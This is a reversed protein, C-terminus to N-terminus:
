NVMISEGFLSCVIVILWMEIFLCVITFCDFNFDHVTIILYLITLKCILQSNVEVEEGAFEM